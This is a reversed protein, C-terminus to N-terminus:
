GGLATFVQSGIWVGAIIALAILADAVRRAVRV